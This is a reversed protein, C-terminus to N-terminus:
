GGIIPLLLWGLIAFSVWLALGCIGALISVWLPEDRQDIFRNKNQHNM